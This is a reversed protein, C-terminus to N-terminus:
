RRRRRRGGPRRAQRKELVSGASGAAVLAGGGLVMDILTVQLTVGALSDIVGQLLMALAALVAIGCVAWTVTLLIEKGFSGAKDLRHSIFGLLTM